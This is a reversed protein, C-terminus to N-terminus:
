PVLILIDFDDYNTQNIVSEFTYKFIDLNSSVLLSVMYKSM